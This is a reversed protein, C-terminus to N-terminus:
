ESPGDEKQEEGERENKKTPSVSHRPSQNQESDDVKLGAHDDGQQKTDRSKVIVVKGPNQKEFLLKLDGDYKEKDRLKRRVIDDREETSWFQALTKEIQDNPFSPCLRDLALRYMANVSSLSHWFWISDSQWAREMADSFVIHHSNEPAREMERWVSMFEQRVNNFRHYEAGCIGDISGGSLWYPVDLMDVPLSCVWELDILCTINWNQDVLVNSAHLDTLQLVFPGHNNDRSIYRDSQLRLVTKVAMQFICDAESFTANPQALFRQDHFDLMASAYAQSSLYTQDIQMTRPATANELITMSATIPRGSLSITGDLNFRFSGIRPQPFSALSLMIRSLDRFFTKRYQPDDKHDNWTESLMKGREEGLYELVMYSTGVEIALKEEATGPLRNDAVKHRMPCRVLLDQVVDDREVQVRICVNFSGRLWQHPHLVKCTYKDSLGLHHLTLASIAKSQNWLKLYLANTEPYDQAKVIADEELDVASQYTIPDRGFFILTAPETEM